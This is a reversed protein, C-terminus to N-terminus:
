HRRPHPAPPHSSVQGPGSSSGSEGVGKPSAIGAGRHGASGSGVGLGSTHAGEFSRGRLKGGPDGLVEVGMVRAMVDGWNGSKPRTSGLSGAWEGAVGPGVRGAGRWCRWVQPPWWAPRSPAQSPPPLQARARWPPAKRRAAAPCPSPRGAAGSCLRRSPPRTPPCAPWSTSSAASGSSPTCWAPTAQPSPSGRRLSGKAEGVGAQRAEQSLTLGPPASVCGLCAALVRRAAPPKHWHHSYWSTVKRPFLKESPGGQAGGPCRGSM